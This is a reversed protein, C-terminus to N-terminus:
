VHEILKDYILKEVDLNLYHNHNHELKHKISRVISMFEAQRGSWRQIQEVIMRQREIMNFENDYSEDFLEPFTEFGMERLMKLCHPGGNIIFPKYNYMTKCIKETLLTFQVWQTKDYYSGTEGVLDFCSNYFWAPDYNWNVYSHISDMDVDLLMKPVEGTNMDAILREQYTERSGQKAMEYFHNPILEKFQKPDVSINAVNSTISDKILDHARLGHLLTYRHIRGSKNLHTYLKKNDYSLYTKYINEADNGNNILSPRSWYFMLPSFLFRYEPMANHLFETFDDALKCGTFFITKNDHINNWMHYRQWDFFKNIFHNTVCPDFMDLQYTILMTINHRQLFSRTNESIIQFLNLPPMEFFLNLPVYYLYKKTPDLEKVESIKQFEIYNECMNFMYHKEQPLWQEIYRGTKMYSDNLIDIPTVLHNGVIDEVLLVIKNM